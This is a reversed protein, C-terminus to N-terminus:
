PAVVQTSLPMWMTALSIGLGVMYGFVVFAVLGGVVQSWKPTTNRGGVGYKLNKQKMNM